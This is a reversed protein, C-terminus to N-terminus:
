RLSSVSTAAEQLVKPRMEGEGCSAASLALWAMLRAMFGREEDAYEMGGDIAPSEGNDNNSPPM